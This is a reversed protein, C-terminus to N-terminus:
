GMGPYKAEWSRFGQTRPQATPQIDKNVHLHVQYDKLKGLGTFLDEYEEVLQQIQPRLETALPNVVAILQLNHSAQWSLLSGGAGEPVYVVEKSTAGDQTSIKAVFKGLIKLPKNSKYPYVRVATDELKPPNRLKRYDIEDLIIINQCWLRGHSKVM